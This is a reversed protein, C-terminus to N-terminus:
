LIKGLFWLHLLLITYWTLCQKATNEPTANDVTPRLTRKNLLSNLRKNITEFIFHLPYDNELM